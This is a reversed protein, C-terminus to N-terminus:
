LKISYSLYVPGWNQGLNVTAAHISFKCPRPIGGLIAKDKM